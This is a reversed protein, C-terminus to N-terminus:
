DRARQSIRVQGSSETIGIGPQERLFRIFSVPNTSSYVGSIRLDDLAPSEITIQRENYRNFESVVDALRSNEFVLQRRQWAVAASLDARHPRAVGEAGIAVQEGASLLIPRPGGLGSVAPAAPGGAVPNSAQTPIAAGAAGRGGRSRDALVTVRGDLVTVVTQTAERNIDFSTGIARVIAGRSRVIFPRRPDETDSFLAQGEILDIERETKSYNVRIRTRANLDVTSGDTLFVVREEGIGTSYVDHDRWAVWASVGAIISLVAVSAALLLRRSYEGRPARTPMAGQLPIVQAGSCGRARAVLEELDPALSPKLARLEGYVTAIELYAQIHQPSQLLWREFQARAAADTDGVRFDVFWESAEELIQRPIPISSRTAM